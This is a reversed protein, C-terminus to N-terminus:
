AISRLNYMMMLLNYGTHAVNAMTEGAAEVAAMAEEM